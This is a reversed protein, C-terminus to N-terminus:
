VEPWSSPPVVFALDSGLTKVLFFSASFSCSSTQEGHEFELLGSLM